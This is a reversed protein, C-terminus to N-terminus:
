DTEQATIHFAGPELDLLGELVRRVIPAAVQSGHGGQEVVAVVVFQPDDAPAFAAFWSHPQKGAVEATGTKGAVPHTTLPFGAFAGTATGSANSVVGRLANSVATLISKKVPVQGIEDGEFNRVVSATDPKQVRLGVQPRYLTGGNALASYAVALQLPTVLLDGQGISLNINDGPLWTSEPFYEPYLAHVEQKWRADPVRGEQEGPIDVGTIHGFGWQRIQHQFFDGRARREQWFRLGWPYFVTDCSQILAEAFSVTSTRTTWNHFVTGSTDGPVTFEAPCPFYDSTTAYGAKVATTAVFPKFTSGPPYLGSVARNTLPAGAPLGFLRQYERVSLGGLFVRPDYTPYSAMALVHGTNPDMVVVAGGNARLYTGSEEDVLTRAAGVAEDLTLQTLAQIEADVALVLDHGPVPDRRGLSGQVEGGADIEQKVVGDTGRLFEEYAQEVGGRGVLQGPLYDSFSPDELEEPSIQGLYGLLHPGLNGQVYRRTGTVRYEVAPFEDQHEELYFVVQEFKPGVGEWVPVPQFPLFDPDRYRDVLDSVPVDLLGALTGLLEEAAADNPVKEKDVLIQMTRVNDVLPEGNRDLIRGRSAPIPTLRVFNGRARERYEDSALVQLFWLRTVLAAFMFAILAALATMRRGVNGENM